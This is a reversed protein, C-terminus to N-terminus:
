RGVEGGAGGTIEFGHGGDRATGELGFRRTLAEELHQSVIAAVAGLHENHGISDPARGRRDLVTRATHAIQSHVHLQMDGDRSTHQLWHAVALDAEHWQGTERGDVRSAHSGTRTYGVERQFYGFGAYVAR